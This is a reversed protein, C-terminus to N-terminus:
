ACGVIPRIRRVLASQAHTIVDATFLGTRFDPLMRFVARHPPPTEGGRQILDTRQCLRMPVEGDIMSRYFM